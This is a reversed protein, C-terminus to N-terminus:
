IYRFHLISTDCVSLSVRANISSKSAFADYVIGFVLEPNILTLCELICEM